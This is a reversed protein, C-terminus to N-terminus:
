VWQIILSTVLSSNDLRCVKGPKLKCEDVEGAPICCDDVGKCDEPYGCDCEEGDEM